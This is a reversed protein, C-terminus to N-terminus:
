TRQVDRVGLQPGPDLLYSLRAGATGDPQVALGTHAGIEGQAHQRLLPVAALESELIVILWGTAPLVPVESFLRSRQITPKM